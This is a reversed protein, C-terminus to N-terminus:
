EFRRIQRELQKITKKLRHITIEKEGIIQQYELTESSPEPSLSRPLITQNPIKKAHTQVFAELTANFDDDNFAEMRSDNPTSVSGCLLSSNIYIHTQKANQSLKRDEEIESEKNQRAEKIPILVRSLGSIKGITTSHTRNSNEKVFHSLRPNRHDQRTQSSQNPMEFVSAEEEEEPEDFPIISRKERSNIKNLSQSNRQYATQDEQGKSDEKEKEQLNEQEEDRNKQNDEEEREDNSRGRESDGLSGVDFEGQYDGDGGGDKQEDDRRNQTLNPEKNHHPSLNNEMGEHNLPSILDLSKPKDKLEHDCYDSWDALLYDCLSSNSIQLTQYLKSLKTRRHEIIDPSSNVTYSIPIQEREKFKAESIIISLESRPESQDSNLINGGDLLSCSQECEQIKDKKISDECPFNEIKKLASELRM